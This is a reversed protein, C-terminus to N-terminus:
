ASVLQGFYVWEDLGIRKLGFPAWQGDTAATLKANRRLTVGAGAIVSVAGAGGQFGEIQASDPWAVSAQAPITLTIASASTALVTRSLHTLDLTASVTISVVAAGGSELTTIGAAKTKRIGSGAVLADAAAESVAAVPAGKTSDVGAGRQIPVLDDVLLAGAAPLGQFDTGTDAM